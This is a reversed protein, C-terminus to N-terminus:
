PDPTWDVPYDLLGYIKGDVICKNFFMRGREAWLICESCEAGTSPDFKDSCTAQDFCPKKQADHAASLLKCEITLPHLPPVPPMPGEFQVLETRLTAPEPVSPPSAKEGGTASIGLFERMAEREHAFCGSVVLSLVFVALRDMFIDGRM